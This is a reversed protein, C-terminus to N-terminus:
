LNMMYYTDTNWEKKHNFLTGNYSYVVNQKDMLWSIAMQTTEVKQSSHIVSSHVNVYLNEHLCFPKQNLMKLNKLVPLKRKLILLVRRMYCFKRKLIYSKKRRYCRILLIKQHSNLIVRSSEPGPESRWRLVPGWLQASKWAQVWINITKSCQRNWGPRLESVKTSATRETELTMKM